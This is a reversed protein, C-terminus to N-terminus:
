HLKWILKNEKETKKFNKVNDILKKFISQEKRKKINLEFWARDHPMVDHLIELTDNDYVM